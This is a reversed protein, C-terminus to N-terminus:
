SKVVKERKGRVEVVEEETIVFDVKVDFRQHPLKKLLQESYCVGIKCGSVTKLFKDYYGGGFGIRYGERDFVVAPVVVVDILSKDKLICKSKPEPIGFKNVLFDGDSIKGELKKVVLRKNEFDVVPFYFSKGGKEKLLLLVNVENRFPYYLLVRKASKYEDLTLIKSIIKKSKKNVEDKLLSDRWLLYRKRLREKEERADNAM